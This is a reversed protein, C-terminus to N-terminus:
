AKGTTEIVELFGGVLHLSGTVLAMVDDGDQKEDALTRILGVAEEITKVVKVDTKPDTTKWTEALQNQVSLKDVDSANTNVSVL